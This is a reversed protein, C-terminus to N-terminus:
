KKENKRNFVFIEQYFFNKNHLETQIHKILEDMRRCEHKDLNKYLHKIGKNQKLINFRRELQQFDPLMYISLFRPDEKELLNNPLM